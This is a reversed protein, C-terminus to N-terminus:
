RGGVPNLRWAAELGTALDAPVEWLGLAGRYPIPKPLPRAFDLGWAYRGPSYDGFSAEPEPPPLEHGCVLGPTAPTGVVWDLYAVAVIAGLSLVKGWGSPSSRYPSQGLDYGGARLASLFPGYDCLERDETPFRKAAHIAIPGRYSTSWSRTEIKKAGVAVLTAWPQTLSLGRM